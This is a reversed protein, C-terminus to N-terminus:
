RLAQSLEEGVRVSLLENTHIKGSEMKALLQMPVGPVGETCSLQRARSSEFAGGKGCSSERVM